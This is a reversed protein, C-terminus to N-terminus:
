PFFSSSYLPFPIISATIWVILVLRQAWLSFFFGNTKIEDFIFIFFSLSYNFYNFCARCYTFLNIKNIIYLKLILIIKVSAMAWIFELYTLHQYNSLKVKLQLHFNQNKRPSIDNNMSVKFIINLERRLHFKEPKNDNKKLSNKNGPIM